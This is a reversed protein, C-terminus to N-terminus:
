FLAFISLVSCFLLIASGFLGFSGFKSKNVGKCKVKLLMETLLLAVFKQDRDFESIKSHNSNNQIAANNKDSPASILDIFNEPLVSSLVLSSSFPATLPVIFDRITPNLMYHMCASM